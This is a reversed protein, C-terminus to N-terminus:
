KWSGADKSDLDDGPGATNNRSYYIKTDSRVCVAHGPFNWNNDNADQMGNATNGHISNDNGYITGNTKSFTGGITEDVYVGGGDNVTNGSITGGEMCFEGGDVYVAGGNNINKNTSLPKIGRGKARNIFTNFGSHL